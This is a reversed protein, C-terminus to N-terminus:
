SVASERATSGTYQTYIYLWVNQRTIVVDENVPTVPYECIMSVVVATAALKFSDRWGKTDGHCTDVDAVQHRSASIAVLVRSILHVVEM